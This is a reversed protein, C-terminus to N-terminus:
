RKRHSRRINVVFDLTAEALYELGGPHHNNNNNNKEKGYTSLISVRIETCSVGAGRVSARRRRWGERRSFEQLRDNEARRQNEFGDRDLSWVFEIENRRNVHAEHRLSFENLRGVDARKQRAARGNLIYQLTWRHFLFRSM